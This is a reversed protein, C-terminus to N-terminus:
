ITNVCVHLHGDGDIDCTSGDFVGSQVVDYITWRKAINVELLGQVVKTVPEALDVFYEEPRSVFDVFDSDDTHSDMWPLRGTYLELMLVGLSWCDSLAADYRTQRYSHIEPALYPPTGIYGQAQCDLGISEGLDILKAHGQATLLINDPKLDRHAYGSEHLRHLAAVLMSLICHIDDEDLYPLIKSLPLQLYESIMHVGQENTTLAFTGAFGPGQMRMGVDFEHQVVSAFHAPSEDDAPFFSKVVYTANDTPHTVAQVVGMSGEGILRRTTSSDFIVDWTHCEDGQCCSDHNAPNLIAYSPKCSTPFAFNCALSEHPSLLALVTLYLVYRCAMTLPTTLPLFFIHPISRISAHRSHLTTLVGLATIRSVVDRLLCLSFM